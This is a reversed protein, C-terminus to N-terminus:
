GLFRRKSRPLLKHYEMNKKALLLSVCVRAREGGVCRETEKGRCRSYLWLIGQASPDIVSERDVFVFDDIFCVLLFLFFTM